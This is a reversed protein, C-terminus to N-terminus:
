ALSPFAGEAARAGLAELHHFRWRRRGSSPIDKEQSLATLLVIATHLAMVRPARKHKVMASTQLVFDALVHAFILATFTAIM